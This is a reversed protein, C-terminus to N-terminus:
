QYDLSNVWLAYNGEQEVAIEVTAPKLDKPRKHHRGTLTALQLANEAGEIKWDGMETFDYPSIYISRQQSTFHLRLKEQNVQSFSVMGVVLSFFLVTLFTKTISYQLMRYNHYNTIQIKSWRVM